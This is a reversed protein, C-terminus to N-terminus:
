VTGREKIKQGPFITSDNLNHPMPQQKVKLFYSLFISPDAKFNIPTPKVANPM